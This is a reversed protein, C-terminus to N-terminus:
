LRSLQVSISYEPLSFVCLSHSLYLCVVFPINRIIASQETCVIHETLVKIFTWLPNDSTSARVEISM